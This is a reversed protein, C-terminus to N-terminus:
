FDYPEIVSAYDSWGSATKYTNLSARPVYIKRGSANNAFVNTGLKPPTTAKVYVSTLSTCYYFANEGIWIVSNPIEISTLSKCDSFAYEGIWTVSNPIVISTLSIDKVFASSSIETVSDPITVSTLNDCYSFAYNGISTISNPIIITKLTGCNYFVNPGISFPGRFTIKGINTYTNSKINQNFGVITNPHVINGDTSTYLIMYDFRNSFFRRRM